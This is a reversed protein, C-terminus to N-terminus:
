QVGLFTGLSGDGRNLEMQVLGASLADMAPCGYGEIGGGVIGLEGLRKALPWPFDAREWYGGIVPVVEEEVFRRTRELYALQEASLQQRLFLYDTALAEGLNGYDARDANTTMVM